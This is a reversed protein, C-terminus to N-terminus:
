EVDDLKAVYLVGGTAAQVVHLVLGTAPVQLYRDWNAQLYERNAAVAADALGIFAPQTAVIRYMAPGELTLTQDVASMAAVNQAKGVIPPGVAQALARM